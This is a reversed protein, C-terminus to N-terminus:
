AITWRTWDEVNHYIAVGRTRAGDLLMSYLRLMPPIFARKVSREKESGRKARSRGGETCTRAEGHVDLIAPFQGPEEPQYVTAQLM